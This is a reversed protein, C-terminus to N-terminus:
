ATRAPLMGRLGVIYRKPFRNATAMARYSRSTTIQGLRALAGVDELAQRDRQGVDILDDRQDLRGGRRGLCARAAPAGQAAPTPAPVAPARRPARRRPRCSRAASSPSDAAAVPEGLHLRLGDEVHAQMAERPELLVLDDVLVLLQEGLDDVQRIDQRPRLPQGLHHAGLQDLHALGVAVRAAGLDVAIVQIEGGLIQDLRLIHHDRERM